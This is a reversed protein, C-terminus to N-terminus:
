LTVNEGYRLLECLIALYNITKNVVWNFFIIKDFHIMKGWTETFHFYGFKSVMVKQLLKVDETQVLSSVVEKTSSVRWYVLM